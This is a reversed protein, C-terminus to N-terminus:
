GWVWWFGLALAVPLILSFRFVSAIRRREMEEMEVKRHLRKGREEAAKKLMAYEVYTIVAGIIAGLIAGQVWMPM